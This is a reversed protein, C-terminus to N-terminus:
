NFQFVITLRRKTSRMKQVYLIPALHHGPGRKLSETFIHTKHASTGLLAPITKSNAARGRPGDEGACQVQLHTRGTKPLQGGPASMM